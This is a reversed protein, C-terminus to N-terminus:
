APFMLGVWGFRPSGALYSSFPIVAVAAVILWIPKNRVIGVVMLALAAIIAPWGFAVIPWWDFM